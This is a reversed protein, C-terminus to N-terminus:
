MFSLFQLAFIADHFVHCVCRLRVYNRHMPMKYAFLNGYCAFVPMHLSASLFLLLRLMVLPLKNDHFFKRGYKGREYYNYTPDYDFEVIYSECLINEEHDVHMCLQCEDLITPNDYFLTMVEGFGSKDFVEYSQVDELYTPDLTSVRGFGSEIINCVSNDIEYEDHPKFLNELDYSSDGWDHDNCSTSMAFSADGLKPNQINNACNVDLSNLSFDNCDHNKNLSRDHIEEYIEEDCNESERIELLVEYLYDLACFESAIPEDYNSRKFLNALPHPDM